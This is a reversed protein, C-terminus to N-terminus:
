EGAAEGKVSLFYCLASLLYACVIVLTLQTYGILMSVYELCGGVMAGLLNSGLAIDLRQSGKLITSFLVSSFAIPLALLSLCLATTGVSDGLAAVVDGVRVQWLILVSFILGVFWPWVRNGILAREVLLNGLAAMVLIGVIIAGIVKWTHGFLISAQMIGTTEVLMFAVGLFFFVLNRWRDGAWLDQGSGPLTLGITVGSVVLVMAVFRLFVWLARSRQPLYLFPWDDSVIAASEVGQVEKPVVWKSGPDVREPGVVFLWQAPFPEVQFTHVPIEFVSRLTALIKPSSTGSMWAYLLLAGEPALRRSCEQFCEQTYVFSDLRLGGSSAVGPHSDIWFFFILDFQTDARRLYARADDVVVTVRPDQYPQDGNLQRGLEVIVPDIDVAVIEKAGAALLAPLNAGAGTGLALIRAGKVRERIPGLDANPITHQVDVSSVIRATEIAPFSQYYNGNATIALRGDGIEHGIGATRLVLRQYPSTVQHEHAPFTLGSLGTLLVLLAFGLTAAPLRRLALLYVLGGLLLWFPAPTWLASLADVLLVGLLSGVLNAGYGRLNSERALLRGVIQGFPLTAVVILVFQWLPFFLWWQKAFADSTNALLNAQFFQLGLLPLAYPVLSVNRAGSAFGVGLGLFCALLGFNRYHALHPLLDGTWRIVCLEVFLALGSLVAIWLLSRPGLGEDIAAAARTVAAHHWGALRKSNWLSGLCGLALLLTVVVLLVRRAPSSSSESALSYALRGLLLAGSLALGSLTLRLSIARVRLWNM